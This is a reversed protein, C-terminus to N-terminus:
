VDMSKALVGCYQKKCLLDDAKRGIGLRSSWTETNIVELSLIAGPGRETAKYLECAQPPSIRDRRWVLCLNLKGTILINQLTSAYRWANKLKPIPHLSTDYERLHLNKTNTIENLDYCKLATV